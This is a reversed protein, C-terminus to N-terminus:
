FNRRCHNAKLTGDQKRCSGPDKTYEECYKDEAPRKHAKLEM